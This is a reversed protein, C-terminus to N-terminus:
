VFNYSRHRQHDAAGHLPAKEVRGLAVRNGAGERHKLTGRAIIGSRLHLRKLCRHVLNALFVLSFVAGIRDVIRNRLDAAGRPPREGARIALIGIQESRDRDFQDVGVQPGIGRRIEDHAQLLLRM